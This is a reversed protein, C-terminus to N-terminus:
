NYKGKLWEIFLEERNKPCKGEYCDDLSFPCDLCDFNFVECIYGWNDEWEDVILNYVEKIREESVEIM